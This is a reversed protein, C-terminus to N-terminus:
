RIVPPRPTACKAGLIQSASQEVRNWSSGNWSCLDYCGANEQWECVSAPVGPKRNKVEFILFPDYKTQRIDAVCINCPLLDPILGKGDDPEHSPPPIQAPNKPPSALCSQTWQGLDGSTAGSLAKVGQWLAAGDVRETAHMAWGVDSSQHAEKVNGIHAPDWERGPSPLPITFKKEINIDDPMFPASIFDISIHVTGTIQIQANATAQLGVASEALGCTRGFETARCGNLLKAERSMMAFQAAYDSLFSPTVEVWLKVGGPAVISTISGPLLSMPDPPEFRVPAKATFAAAPLRELSSRARGFDFDPRLPALSAAPPSWIQANFAGDRGGLGLQSSWGSPPPTGGPPAPPLHSSVNVIFPVGSRGYTDQVIPTTLQHSQPFDFEVSSGKKFTFPTDIPLLSTAYTFAPKASVQGYPTIITIPPLSAGVRTASWDTVIELSYSNAVGYDGAKMGAPWAPASSRVTAVINQRGADLCGLLPACIKTVQFLEARKAAPDFKSLGVIQRLEVKGIGVPVAARNEIRGGPRDGIDKLLCLLSDAMLDGRGGLYGWAPPSAGGFPAGLTVGSAIERTYSGCRSDLTPADAGLGSLVKALLALGSQVAPPISSICTPFSEWPTDNLSGVANGKGLAGPDTAPLVVSPSGSPRAIPRTADRIAGTMRAIDAMSEGAKKVEIANNAAYWYIAGGQFQSYAGTRNPLPIEDSTPYGLFSREWGLEQWKQRILGHVEHAGTSPHWYISGREFHRFRGVGDPTPREEGQPRGLVSQEGGLELYKREIPAQVAPVRMRQQQVAASLMPALALAVMSSALLRKM